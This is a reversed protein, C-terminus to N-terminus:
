PFSRSRTSEYCKFVKANPLYAVDESNCRPCRVKGDPWRLRVMFEHCNEANAFYVM